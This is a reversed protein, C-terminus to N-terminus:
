VPELLYDDIEVSAGRQLFNVSVLLRTKGRRTVVTGEVGAMPGHRVRVRNGATLRNEITLPADSAIVRCIQRLDHLLQDPDAVELLRSIRNTMLARVREEESGLLFLYGPFLPIRSRVARGRYHSTKGILPLYFPVAYGVLERAVAKEQRAKTYLVWWRREGPEVPDDDLLTPPYVSVEDGLVPM